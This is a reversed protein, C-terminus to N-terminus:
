FAWKKVEEAEECCQNNAYVGLIENQKHRKNIAKHFYSTNVDGEKHWKSRANQRLLNDKLKLDCLLRAREENRKMIEWEELGLVEDIM